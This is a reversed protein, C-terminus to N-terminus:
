VHARGIEQLVSAAVVAAERIGRIQRENKLPIM